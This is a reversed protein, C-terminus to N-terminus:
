AGAGYFNGVNKLAQFTRQSLKKDEQAQQTTLQLLQIQGEKTQKMKDVQALTGVDQGVIKHTVKGMLWCGISGGIFGAVAGIATGIGPTIATGAISGIKMAAIGGAWAGIGEGVAWGVASGAGKIATQGLQKFGTTKDKEFAAQIKGEMLDSVFEFAAFLLGNGVKCSHKLSTTLTATKTGSETITKKVVDEIKEYQSPNIKKRLWTLKDQLGLKRLGNPIFGTFRNGLRKAKETWMAIEEPNASKLAGELGSKITKYEEMLEPQKSLSKRFLGLKTFGFTSSNLAELKHMRAYAESLIDYGGKFAETEGNLVLKNNWLKNLNSGKITIDKFMKNVDGKFFTTLTNIPHAITRPNNMIGFAAGGVAAGMLSESPASNKVYYDGLENLDDSIGRFQPNNLDVQQNGRVATQYKNNVKTADNYQTFIDKNYNGYGRFMPYNNYLGNNSIAMYNNYMSPCNMNAGSRGGYLMFEMNALNNIAFNNM